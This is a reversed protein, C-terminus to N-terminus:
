FLGRTANGFQQGAVQGPNYAINGGRQSLYQQLFQAFPGLGGAFLQSSQSAPMQNSLADIQQKIRDAAQQQASTYASTRLGAQQSGM